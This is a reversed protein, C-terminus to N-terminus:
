TVGNNGCSLARTGRRACTEIQIRFTCSPRKEIGCLAASHRASRAATVLAPMPASKAPKEGATHLTTPRFAKPPSSTAATTFYASLMRLVYTAASEFGFAREQAGM